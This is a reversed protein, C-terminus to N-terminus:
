QSYVSFPLPVVATRYYTATPSPSTRLFHKYLERRRGMAMSM